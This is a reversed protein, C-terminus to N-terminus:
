CHQLPACVQPSCGDTNTRMAHLCSVDLQAHHPRPHGDVRAQGIEEV